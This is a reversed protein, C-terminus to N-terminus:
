MNVVSMNSSTFRVPMKGIERYLWSKTKELENKLQEKYIKTIHGGNKIKVFDGDIMKSFTMQILYFNPSKDGEKFYDMIRSLDSELRKRNTLNIKKQEKDITNAPDFLIASLNFLNSWYNPSETDLEWIRKWIIELKSVM